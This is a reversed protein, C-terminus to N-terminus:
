FRRPDRITFFPIGKGGLKLLTKWWFRHFIWFILINQDSKVKLSFHDTNKLCKKLLTRPVSKHYKKAMKRGWPFIPRTKQPNEEIKLLYIKKFHDNKILIIMKLDNSRYITLIMKHDIQDNVQSQTLTKSWFHDNKIMKKYITM